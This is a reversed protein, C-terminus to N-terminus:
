KRSTFRRWTGRLFRGLPGCRRRRVPYILIYKDSYESLTQGPDLAYKATPISNRTLKQDDFEREGMRVPQEGGMEPSPDWILYEIGKATFEVCTVVWHHGSTTLLISPLQAERIGRHIAQKAQEKSDADLVSFAVRSQAVFPLRNLCGVITDPYAFMDGDVFPDTLPAGWDKSMVKLLDAQSTRLDVDFCSVLMRMCAPGCQDPGQKEYTLNKYSPNMNWKAIKELRPATLPEGNGIRFDTRITAHIRRKKTRSKRLKSYPPWIACKTM